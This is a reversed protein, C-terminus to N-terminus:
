LIFAYKRLRSYSHRKRVRVAPMVLVSSLMVVTLMCFVVTLMCFVVRRSCFMVRCM